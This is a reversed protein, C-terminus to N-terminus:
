KVVKVAKGSVVKIYIGKDPNVVRRGNLDYYVADAAEADIGEVGTPTTNIELVQTDSVTIGNVVCSATITVEYIYNHQLSGLVILYNGDEDVGDSEVVNDSIAAIGEEADESEAPRLAEYQCSVKVEADEINQTEVPVIIHVVVMGDSTESNYTVNGIKVAEANSKEGLGEITTDLTVVTNYMVNNFFYGDMWEMAGGWAPVELIVKDDAAYIKATIAEEPDSFNTYYYEYISDGNDEDIYAIQGTEAVAEQTEVNVKFEIPMDGAFNNITLINTDADYTATVAWDEIDGLEPEDGLGMTMDAQATMNGTIEDKEEGGTNSETSAITITLNELDATIEVSGGKWTENAWYYNEGGLAMSLDGEFNAGEVPMIMVGPREEEGAEPTGSPPVLEEGPSVSPVYIMGENTVLNFEFEGEEINFTGKYVNSGEETEILQWDANADKSYDNMAGSLYLTTPVVVAEGTTIYFDIAENDVGNIKFVGAAVQIVFDGEYDFPDWLTLVGNEYKEVGGVSMMDSDGLPYISIFATSPNGWEDEEGLTITGDATVSITTFGPEVGTPNDADTSLVKDQIAFSIAAGGVPEEVDEKPLQFKLTSEYASAYYFKGATPAYLSFSGEPFTITAMNDDDVEMTCILAPDLEEGFEQSYWGENFYYYAGVTTGGSIGTAQLEVIVNDRDTADILMTPSAGKFGLATYLTKFPNKVKFIGPNFLNQTVEVDAYETNQEGIFNSYIINENFTANEMVIGKKEAGEFDYISFSGLGDTGDQDSCAEWNIGSDAPFTIEGASADYTGILDQSDLDDTDWNYVYPRQYVYYQGTYGLYEDSFTITSSSEDYIGVFPWEDGNPDVFSIEDGDLTAEYEIEVAGLSSQFYYDGMNFVWLGEISTNADAKRMGKLQKGALMSASLDRAEMKATSKLVAEKKARPQIETKLSAKEVNLNVNAAIAIGAICLGSALATYFKRM